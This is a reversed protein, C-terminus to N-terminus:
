HVLDVLFQLSSKEFASFSYRDDLFIDIDNDFTKLGLYLSGMRASKNKQIFYFLFDAYKFPIVFM